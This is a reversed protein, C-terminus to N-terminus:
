RIVSFSTPTLIMNTVNRVIEGGRRISEDRLKQWAPNERFAAWAKERHAESEFPILYTMNPRNPGFVTDAYLIPHVGSKHFLDIEGNAFRDHLYGLQRETPSEYIRLEFVKHAPETPAGPKISPCFPTARLLAYDERYFAPEGAELESLAAAWEGDAAVRAWAAEMETLSPHSRIAVVSPIHAGVEITFFGMPGFHHKQFLPLACKEIWSLYRNVQPGSQLRVTVLEFVPRSM